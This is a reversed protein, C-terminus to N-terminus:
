RLWKKAENLEDIWSAPLGQGKELRALWTEIMAAKRLMIEAQRNLTLRRLKLAGESVTGKRPVGWETHAGEPARRAHARFPEPPLKTIRKLEEGRAKLRKCTEDLDKIAASLPTKTM